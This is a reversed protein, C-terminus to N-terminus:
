GRKKQKLSLALILLSRSRVESFLLVSGRGDAANQQQVM